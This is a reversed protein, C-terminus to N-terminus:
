WTAQVPWLALEVTTDTVPPCLTPSPHITRPFSRLARPFLISSYIVTAGGVPTGGGCASCSDNTFRVVVNGAGVRAIRKGGFYIFERLLNGSGDTEALVEGGHGYLYQTGNSKAV